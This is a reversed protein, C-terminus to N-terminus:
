EEFNAISGSNGIDFDYAQQIKEAQQTRKLEIKVQKMNEMLFKINSQESAKLENLLLNLEEEQIECKIFSCCLFTPFLEHTPILIM